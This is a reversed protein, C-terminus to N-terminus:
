ADSKAEGSTEPDDLARLFAVLLEISAFGHREGTEVNELLARWDRGDGRVRWLRLLYSRYEERMM